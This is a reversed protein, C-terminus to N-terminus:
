PALIDIRNKIMGILHDYRNELVARCSEETSTDLDCNLGLITKVASDNIDRTYDALTSDSIATNEEDTIYIFNIPSNLFYTYDNRKSEEGKRLRVSPAVISGLPIVHHKELRRRVFPNMNVNKDIVGNYTQALLFQCFVDRLFEKPYSLGENIKYLLFEKNSFYSRQFIGPKLTNKIWSTNNSEITEILKTISIIANINQDSNFYGSFISCWYWAELYDYTESRSRYEKNLLIYSIVVLMLKYNIDKIDRIGCRIQLFFLALDMAEVIEESYDRLNAATVDMIKNKKILDLRINSSNFDHVHSYLSMVNLYAEIYAPAISEDNEKLGRIGGLEITAIYGDSDIYACVDVNRRLTDSFVDKSYKRKKRMNNLLVDYYNEQSVGAYKAMILEFTGLTIGGKNLNEYINIARDRRHNDVILQNLQINDLCSHLYENIGSVWERGQQALADQFFERRDVNDREECTLLTFETLVEQIFRETEDFSLSDYEQLIDIQVNESIREIIKRLLSQSKQDGSLLYLPILYEDGSTCFDMLNSFSFNRNFPNYSSEDGVKFPVIKIMDIIEDSLFDPESTAPNVFPILGGLKFYDEQSREGNADKYRPLRLFFRRKLSSQQILESVQGAMEFVINSFANALVTLRQQGDLLANVEGTINLDSARQRTKCGIKKYAYEDAKVTLLLISGVPMKALVSAVLSAQKEEKDWVFRRQFDPLLIQRNKIKELINNFPEVITQM